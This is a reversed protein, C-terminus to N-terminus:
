YFIVQGMGTLVILLTGLDWELMQYKGAILTARM